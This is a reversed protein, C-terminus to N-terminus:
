AESDSLDIGKQGPIHLGCEHLLLIRATRVRHQAMVLLNPMRVLELKPAETFEKAMLALTKLGTASYLAEFADESDWNRKYELHRPQMQQCCM